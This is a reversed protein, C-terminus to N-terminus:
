LRPKIRSDRNPDAPQPLQQELNEQALASRILNILAPNKPRLTPQEFFPLPGSIHTVGYDSDFENGNENLFGERYVKLRFGGPTDQPLRLDETTAPPDELFYLTPQGSFDLDGARSLADDIAEHPGLANITIELFRYPM